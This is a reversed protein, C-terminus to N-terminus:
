LRRKNSLIILVAASSSKMRYDIVDTIQWIWSNAGRACALVHQIRKISLKTNHTRCFTYETICLM